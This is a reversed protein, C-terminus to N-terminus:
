NSKNNYIRSVVFLVIVALLFSPIAHQFGLINPTKSLTLILVSGVGVIM